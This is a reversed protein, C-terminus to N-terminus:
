TSDRASTIAHEDPSLGSAKSSISKVTLGPPRCKLRSVPPLGTRFRCDTINRHQLEASHNIFIMKAGHHHKTGGPLCALLQMIHSPENFAMEKLQGRAQGLDDLKQEADIMSWVSKMVKAPEAYDFVIPVPLDVEPRQLLM